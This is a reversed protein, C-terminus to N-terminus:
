HIKTVKFDYLYFCAHLTGCYKDEDNEANIVDNRNKNKFSRVEFM